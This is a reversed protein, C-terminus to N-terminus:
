YDRRWDAVVVRADLDLSLLLEPVLPILHERARRGHSRAAPGGAAAAAGQGSDTGAEGAREEGAEAVRMLPHAPHDEIAVVAGLREGDPDLVTCGILDTWYVEGEEPAPFQARSLLVECGDLALAADRDDVGAIKAVIEHGGHPKAREIQVAQTRAGDRLWWTALQPLLSLRPDNFPAVRVWGRVGWAGTIRGVLVPDAPGDASQPDPSPRSREPVRSGM